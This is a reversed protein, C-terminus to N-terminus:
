RPRVMPAEVQQRAITAADWIGSCYVIVETAATGDTRIQLLVRWMREEGEMPAWMEAEILLGDETKTRHVSAVRRGPVFEEHTLVHHFAERGQLQFRWSPLTFDVLVDDRVLAVLADADSRLYADAFADTLSTDTAATM